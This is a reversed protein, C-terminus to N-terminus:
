QFGCCCCPWLSEAPESGSSPRQRPLWAALGDAKMCYQPAEKDVALWCTAAAYLAAPRVLTEHRDLGTGQCSRSHGTSYWRRLPAQLSGATDMAPLILVERPGIRMQLAVIHLDLLLLCHQLCLLVLQRLIQLRDHLVLQLGVLLHLLNDTKNSSMRHECPGRGEWKDATIAQPRASCDAWCQQCHPLISPGRVPMQANSASLEAAAAPLTATLGQLLGYAAPLAEFVTHCASLSAQAPPSCTSVSVGTSLIPLRSCCSMSTLWQRPM